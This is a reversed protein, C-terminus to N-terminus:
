RWTDQHLYNNYLHTKTSALVKLMIAVVDITNTMLKSLWLGM